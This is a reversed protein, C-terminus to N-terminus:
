VLIPTRSIPHKRVRILDGWNQSVQATNEFLMDEHHPQPILLFAVHFTCYSIVNRIGKLAKFQQALSRIFPERSKRPFHQYLLVSHGSEYSAEVECWYIYKSSKKKGRPVSKVGLGNDPDFFVLDAGEAFKFFKDFYQDRLHMNDQIVEDYFRCNRIVNAQEIINVHRVGKDLVHERLHEYLVPDYKRWTEPQELYRTRRGDTGNDDETLVWCVVTNIQGNGGLLRLLSYKKYDNIDGFYQNKM